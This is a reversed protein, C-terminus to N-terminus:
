NKWRRPLVKLNKRHRPKCKRNGDMIYIFYITIINQFFLLKKVFTSNNNKQRLLMYMKLQLQIFFFQIGKFFIFVRYELWDVEGARTEM